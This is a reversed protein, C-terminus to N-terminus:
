VCRHMPFFYPRPSPIDLTPPRLHNSGGDTNNGSHVSIRTTASEIETSPFSDHAFGASKTPSAFPSDPLNHEGSCIAHFLCLDLKSVSFHLKVRGLQVDILDHNM